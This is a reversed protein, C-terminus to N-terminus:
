RKGQQRDQIESARKSKGITPTEATLATPGELTRVLLDSRLEHLAREANGVLNMLQDDPSFGKSRTRAALRSVYDLAPQLRAKITRAQRRTVPNSPGALPVM